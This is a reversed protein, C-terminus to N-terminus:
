QNGTKIGFSRETEKIIAQKERESKGVVNATREIILEEGDKQFTYQMWLRGNEKDERVLVSSPAVESPSFSSSANAELRNDRSEDAHSVYTAQGEERRKRQLSAERKRGVIAVGGEQESSARDLSDLIRSKLENVSEKDMGAIDFSRSYYISRGPQEIDVRIRLQREDTTVERSSSRQAVAGFGVTVLLLTFLTKM